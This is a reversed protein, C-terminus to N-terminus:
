ANRRATFLAHDHTDSVCSEIHAPYLEMGLTDHRGRTPAQDRIPDM